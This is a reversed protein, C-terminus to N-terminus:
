MSITYILRAPFNPIRGGGTSPPLLTLSERHRMRLYGPRMAVYLLRAGVLACPICCLALELADVRFIVAIPGDKPRKVTRLRLQEFLIVALLASIAICIGYLTVFKGDFCLAPSPALVALLVLELAFLAKKRQRSMSEEGIDDDFIISYKLM